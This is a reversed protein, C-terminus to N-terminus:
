VNCGGEQTVLTYNVLLTYLEEDGMGGEWNQSCAMAMEEDEEWLWGFEPHLADVLEERVFQKRNWPRVDEPSDPVPPGDPYYPDYHPEKHSM